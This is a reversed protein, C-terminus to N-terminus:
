SILGWGGLYDRVKLNKEIEEKKLKKERIAFFLLYSVVGLSVWSGIKFINFFYFIQFVLFLIGAGLLLYRKKFVM